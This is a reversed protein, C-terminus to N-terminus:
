IEEGSTEDGLRNRIDCIYARDKEVLDCHVDIGYVSSLKGAAVGTSGSGAFFDLVRLPKNKFTAIDLARYVLDVPKKSPHKWRKGDKTSQNILWYDRLNKGFNYRKAAEKDYVHRADRRAWILTQNSNIMKTMSLNPFANPICWQVWQITYLGLKRHAFALDPINHFSGCNFMTAGPNLKNMARRLWQLSWAYYREISDWSSYFSKWNKRAFDANRDYKAAKNTKNGTNYPSDLFIVDYTNDNLATDLVELCDGHYVSYTYM